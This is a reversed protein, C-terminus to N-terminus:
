GERTSGRVYLYVDDMMEQAGPSVLKDCDPRWSVYFYPSYSIVFAGAPVKHSQEIGKVRISCRRRVSFMQRWQLTDMGSRLDVLPPARKSLSDFPHSPEEFRWHFKAVVPYDSSLVGEEKTRAVLSGDNDCLGGDIHTRLRPTLRHLASVWSATNLSVHKSSVSCFRPKSFVICSDQLRIPTFM